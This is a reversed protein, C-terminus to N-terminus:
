VYSGLHLGHQDEQTVTLFASGSEQLDRFILSVALDLQKAAEIEFDKKRDLTDTRNTNTFVNLLNSSLKEDLVQAALTYLYPWVLRDVYRALVATFDCEVAADIHLLTGASHASGFRLYDPQGSVMPEVPRLSILEGEASELYVALETHEDTLPVRLGLRFSNAGNRLSVLKRLHEVQYATDVVVLEAAHVTDPQLGVNATVREILVCSEAQPFQAILRVATQSAPVATVLPQTFLPRPLSRTTRALVHQFSANCKLASELGTALKNLTAPQLRDFLSTASESRLNEVLEVSMGPLSDCQLAANPHTTASLGVATLFPNSTM